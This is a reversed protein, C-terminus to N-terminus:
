NFGRELVIRDNACSVFPHPLHTGHHIIITSCTFNTEHQSPSNCKLFTNKDIQHQCRQASMHAKVAKEQEAAAFVVQLRNKSMYSWFIAECWTRNQETHQQLLAHQRLKRQYMRTRRKQRTTQLVIHKLM